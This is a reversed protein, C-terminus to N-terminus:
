GLRALISRAQDRQSNDGEKLVENLLERTGDKDGMEEYAKALDLKTAVEQWRADQAGDGGDGPAGAQAPRVEEPTNFDVLITKDYADETSEDLLIADSPLKPTSASASAPIELNGPAEPPSGFRARYTADTMAITSTPDFEADESPLKPM